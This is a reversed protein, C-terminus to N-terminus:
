RNNREALYVGLLVISGGVVIHATIPEHLIIVGGLTVLVPHLYSFVIVRSASLWKLAHYYILYAVISAFIAMYLMAAWGRWTIRGWDFRWLFPLGVPLVFLAGALFTFTNLELSHYRRSVEKGAVTYLAFALAGVLTILDGRLTGAHLSLGREVVLITVGLFALGTGLIKSATLEEVGRLRAIILVLIPSLSIILSSHAVTTGSLGITFLVQNLTVGYLGLEAFKLWDGRALAPRAAANNPKVLAAPRSLGYLLLLILAAVSVRVVALPVPSWERLAIKGVLFNGAWLLVMLGILPYLTLKQRTTLM